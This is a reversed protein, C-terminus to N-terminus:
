NRELEVVGDMHAALAVHLQRLPAEKKGGDLKRRM